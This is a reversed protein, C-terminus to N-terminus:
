QANQAYVRIDDGVLRKATFSGIKDDYFVDDEWVEGTTIEYIPYIKISVPVKYSSSWAIAYEKTETLSYGLQTELIKVTLKGDISYQNSISLTEKITIKGAPRNYQKILTSTDTKTEVFKNKIFYESTLLGRANRNNNVNIESTEQEIRYVELLNPDYEEGMSELYDKIDSKETIHTIIYDETNELSTIEKANIHTPEIICSLCITFIIIRLILNKM